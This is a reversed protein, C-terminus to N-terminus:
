STTLARVPVARWRTASNSYSLRSNNTCRASSKSKWAGKKVLDKLCKSKENTWHFDFNNLVFPQPVQKLDVDDKFVDLSLLNCQGQMPTSLINTLQYIGQCTLFKSWNQWTFHPRFPHTPNWQSWVQKIEKSAEATANLIWDMNPVDDEVKPM